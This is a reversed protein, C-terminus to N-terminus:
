AVPLYVGSASLPLFFPLFLLVMKQVHSFCGISLVTIVNAKSIKNQLCFNRRKDMYIYRDIQQTAICSTHFCLVSNKTNTFDAYSGSSACHVSGKRWSLTQGQYGLLSVVERDARRPSLSIMGQWHPQNLEGQLPM